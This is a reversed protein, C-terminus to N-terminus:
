TGHPRVEDSFLSDKSLSFALIQAIRRMMPSALFIRIYSFLTCQRQWWSATGTSLTICPQCFLVLWTNSRKCLCASLDLMLEVTMSPKRYSVLLREHQTSESSTAFYFPIVFYVIAYISYRELSYWHRLKTRISQVMRWLISTHTSLKRCGAEGMAANITHICSFFALSALKRDRLVTKIPCFFSISLWSNKKLNEVRSKARLYSPLWLQVLGISHDVFARQTAGVWLSWIPRYGNSSFLKESRRCGHIRDCFLTHKIYDVQRLFRNHYRNHIADRCSNVNGKIIARLAVFIHLLAEFSSWESIKRAFHRPVASDVWPRFRAAIPGGLRLGSLYIPKNFSYLRCYNLKKWLARLCHSCFYPWDMLYPLKCFDGRLNQLKLSLTPANQIHKLINVQFACMCFDCTRSHPHAPEQLLTHCM